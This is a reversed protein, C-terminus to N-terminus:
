GRLANLQNAYGTPDVRVDILCPRGAGLARSIADAYEAETRARWVSFGFAAAAGAFDARDWRVGDSPLGRAQQKIDILSLAGDNFVVIVIRARREAATLLEGLCMALGGDGTFAIVPRAPDALSAAIAAPLAFAMTALGNSILLDHPADCAWFATASFMHAGADVTVRPRPEAHSAEHALTVIRQPSVGDGAACALRERIRRRHSRLEDPSWGAASQLKGLGTVIQALDGYVAATPAVFQVPRRVLGIDLVPARYAWPRPILEVPDVGFLVVLDSADVLPAELTGGTFLGIMGPDTDPIVGKAQYTALVPCALADALRRAAAAGGPTSAELGVVLVPRRARELLARAADPAASEVGAVRAGSPTPGSAVVRRAAESTLEIHVPGHPPASALDLLRALEVVADAGDLRSHGKTIPATLARQDFVQHTVFGALAPGLGDSILLLPARDLSACAIGNAANAVGPGITTLVVGPADGIRATAVAMIAASAEHRALVFDIGRARAAAIVDLSSGGGPVGFIRRVGREALADVLHEVLPKSRSM